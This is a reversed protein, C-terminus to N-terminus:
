GPPPSPCGWLTWQSAGTKQDELSQHLPELLLGGSSIRTLLFLPLTAGQTNPLVRCRERLWGKTPHRLVPVMALPTWLVQPGLTNPPSHGRFDGDPLLVAMGSHDPLVLCGTLPVMPSPEDGRWPSAPLTRSATVDKNPSNANPLSHKYGIPGKISLAM